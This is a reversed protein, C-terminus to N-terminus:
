KTSLGLGFRAITNRQIESTGGAITSGFSTLYLREIEGKFPAWKSDRELQGFLGMIQMVTNTFRQGMEAAFTKLVSAEYTLTEGSCLKATARYALLRCVEVEIAVDALKRRVAPNDALTKGDDGTTKRCYDVTEELLRRIHSVKVCPAWYRDGELGGLLLPFGQNKQGILNGKPVRVNEFFVEAYCYGGTMDLIPRVTIGPLSMDILFLSIGKHRPADPDTRAVTYGHSAHHAYSNWTKQGNIVYYDGDEVASTTMALLDSGANPESFGEWLSVEGRVARPLFSRKLEESGYTIIPICFAEITWMAAAPAKFYAMEDLLIYLEILPRDQGGYEKPWTRGIWEKAALRCMFGYSYAGFGYFDDESECHYEELPEKELFSHVERRWAQEEETFTFDM